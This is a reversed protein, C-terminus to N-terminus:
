IGLGERFWPGMKRSLSIPLIKWLKIFMKYKPNTPDVKPIENVKWLLYYHRLDHMESAWLSKFKHQGSEERTRGWDFVQYGNNCGWKIFEWHVADNPRYQLFKEDSVAVIVHIRKKYTYGVLLSVLKGEYYAGFGKALGKKSLISFFNEFFAKSVPPSGFAKMNKLYLEYIEDVDSSGLEKLTIGSNEAKRVAKRKQKNIKKWLAEHDELKTIFRKYDVSKKLSTKDLVSNFSELGERIELYHTSKSYTNAIEFLLKKVNELSNDGAFGGYELFGCSILKNSLISHKIDILPIMIEIKDNETVAIYDTKVGSFSKEIFEKWEPTHFILSDHKNLFEKWMKNDKEVHLIEKM